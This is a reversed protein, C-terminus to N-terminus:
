RRRRLYYPQNYIEEKVDQHLEELESKTDLTTKIAYRISSILSLHLIEIDEVFVNIEKKIEEKTKM